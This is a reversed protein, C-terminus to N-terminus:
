IGLKHTISDVKEWIFGMTEKLMIQLKTNDINDIKFYDFDIYLGQKTFHESEFSMRSKIDDKNVPSLILRADYGKDKYDLILEFDKGKQGIIDTLNQSLFNNYLLQNLTDFDKECPIFVKTRCGFRTGSPIKYHENKLLLKIFSTARDQFFNKTPPNYTFYGFSKYGAFSGEKDVSTASDTFSVVNSDIKWHPLFKSDRVYDAVFGRVDLFSGVAAHRIEVVHETVMIKEVKTM